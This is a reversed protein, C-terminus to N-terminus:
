GKPKLPHSRVWEQYTLYAEECTMLDSGGSKERHWWRRFEDFRDEDRLGFWPDRAFMKGGRLSRREGDAM